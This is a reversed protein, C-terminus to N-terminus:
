PFFACAAAKTAFKDNTWWDNMWKDMWENMWENMWQSVLNEQTKTFLAHELAKTASKHIQKNM